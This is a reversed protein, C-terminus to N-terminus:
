AADRTNALELDACRWSLQQASIGSHFVLRGSVDDAGKGDICEARRHLRHLPTRWAAKSAEFLSGATGCRSSVLHCENSFATPRVGPTHVTTSEVPLAYPLTCALALGRGQRRFLLPRLGNIRRLALCGRALLETTTVM